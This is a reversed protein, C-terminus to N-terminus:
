EVLTKAMTVFECWKKRDHIISKRDNVGIRKLQENVVYMWKKRPRGRRRKGIPKWYDVKITNHNEHMVLGFCQIRQDRIFYKIPVMKIKDILEKKFKRRQMGTNTDLKPRCIMQWVKNKLTKTSNCEYDDM